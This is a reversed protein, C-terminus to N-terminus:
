SHVALGGIGHHRINGLQQTGEHLKKFGCKVLVVNSNAAFQHSTRRNQGEGILELLQERIQDAICDVRRGGPAFYSDHRPRRRLVSFTPRFPYSNDNSVSATADLFSNLPMYELGEDCALPFRARSKSEPDTIVYDFPVPTRELQFTFDARSAPTNERNEQGRMVLWLGLSHGDIRLRGLSRFAPQKM